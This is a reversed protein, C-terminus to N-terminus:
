DWFLRPNTERVIEDLNAEAKRAKVKQNELLMSPEVPERRRRLFVRARERVMKELPKNPILAYVLTCNLAEAARRLTAM